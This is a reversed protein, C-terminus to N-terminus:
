TGAAALGEPYSGVAPDGLPDGYDAFYSFILRFDFPSSSPSPSPSSSPAAIERIFAFRPEEPANPDLGEDKLIRAIRRRADRGRWAEDQSWVLRDCAPKVKGLKVWLFDDEMLSFRLEERSKGLLTTLQEYPLLHWNRRLVTIYGKTKWESPVPPDAALGMDAAVANIEASEAGAVAALEAVPVLGWNRWVFASLRDPFPAPSLALRVCPEGPLPVADKAEGATAGGPAALGASCILLLGPVAFLRKM